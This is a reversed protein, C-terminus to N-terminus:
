LINIFSKEAVRGHGNGVRANSSERITKENENVLLRRQGLALLFVGFMFVGCLSMGRVYYPKDSDPYLRTGLLSGLQGLVQVMAVGTGRSSSSQQNNVTWSLILTIASFFGSAAAYVGLYRLGSSLRFYGAAAIWLYGASGILAHICIFVTRNRLRDSLFATLLVVVFALLYVPASLAQSALQSYGMRLANTYLESSVDVCLFMSKSSPQCFHQCARLLPTVASSCSSFVGDSLVSRDVRLNCVSTMYVKGSLLTKSIERWDLGRRRRSGQQENRNLDAVRWAAVEKERSDLWKATGPSDPIEFWAFIALIISPFGEVLFLMRWPEVPSAEGMRVICWALVGAISTALPAAAIFLGLRFALEDRRFFQSLYFPVGPGFAAESIGLLARLTLMSGFSTSISQLSALLGWAFVCCSIYIHAPLVRYLLTMWEFLVYTVYFATLLASYQSSSLGLSTEMGAERANGVNSRDLFSMGFLLSLLLVLRSDLKRLVRAEEERSVDSKAERRHTPRRSRLAPCTAEDHRHLATSTKQNLLGSEDTAAGTVDAELEGLEELGIDHVDGGPSDLISLPSGFRHETEGVSSTSESGSSNM